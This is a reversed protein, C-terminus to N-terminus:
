QTFQAAVDLGFLDFAALVTMGAIRLVSRGSLHGSAGDDRAFETSTIRDMPARNFKRGRQFTLATLGVATKASLRSVVRLLARAVEIGAWHYEIIRSHHRLLRGRIAIFSM